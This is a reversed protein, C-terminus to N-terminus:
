AVCLGRWETLAAARDRKFNARSHLSRETNFLNYVSAHIAAFKQLSRMCRFRLMARERRRFPLHSNEARNNKWRGTEQRDDAGLERLAAGYSRLRDTVFVDARGHKKITKKLFKLAAKKDRTKTVFSELVEGERDVARWWYHQEGNIKVFMEDLHWRWRSSRMGEIRRKRIEAAFMPGFRHWRFRIAEHSVDIGCEHLLDEVNRLSLPFHVYLMVALRIIERSAKFNRFPDPKTM